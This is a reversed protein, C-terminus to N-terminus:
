TRFRQRSCWVCGMARSRPTVEARREPTGANFGGTLVATSAFNAFGCLAFSLVAITRPDLAHRSANRKSQSLDHHRRFVIRAEVRRAIESVGHRAHNM